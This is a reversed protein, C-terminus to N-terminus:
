VQSPVNARDGVVAAAEDYEAESIIKTRAWQRAVDVLPKM